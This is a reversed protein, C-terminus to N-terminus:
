RRGLRQLAYDVYTHDLVQKLDVAATQGGTKIDYQQMDDVAAEDMQGNFEVGSCARICLTRRRAPRAQNVYDLSTVARERRMVVELYEYV